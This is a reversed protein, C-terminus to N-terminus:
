PAKRPKRTTSPTLQAALPATLQQYLEFLYTVRELESTFTRRGYCADVAKDLRQHAKLLDPPMTNADYLDALTNGSALYPARADLVAQAAAEVAQTQAPTPSAPWPFNNYVLKNSYRYDSKLRGCVQRMWAMHMHSTLVGFHYLTVNPIMFVLNNAIVDPSIFGMPIYRRTESSVSPVLVYPQKTQRNETFLWPRNAWDQTATKTSELRKKRVGALRQSLIKSQRLVAPDIDQLWFCYRKIGNIYEEAGLLPRIYLALAPEQRLTEDKEVSTMMLFGGDTPQSGKIMPPVDCLTTGRDAIVTNNFDVLYPSINSATIELPEGAIDDYSFLRPQQATRMSFGIIVCYVAAKGRAENIWKFTRHAFHLKIGKQFLFPWLISVQEGQTISNTSVFACAINSGQIFEAAKAYWCAVYDLNKAGKHNGFVLDIDDTQQATRKNKGIFPPNGLIYSLRQPPIVTAWDIRLANGTEPTGGVIHPETKLPLRLVHLGTEQALRINMQHDTLWLAVRAIQVPLEEIEIGYFQDVNVISRLATDTRLQGGSAETELAELAKIIQTELLRLERYAIVLFNGCGCAPDLFTLGRLKTQLADLKAKRRTSKDALVQALEDKLGDLFLGNIVKLINKESTYHAGLRRRETQNMAAQFMSGFIAPSVENWRIACLELLADRAAADFHPPRLNEGFLSGNVYPFKLLDEDTNRQRRNEPEDLLAFLTSIFAGVDSGDERTKNEICWRFLDKEFIATDEAFLIFLLRVLFVKLAHEEYGNAKLGDFLNGLKEAAKINIPDEDKYTRPTYGALFSLKEINQPLEALTFETEELTNGGLSFLKFRQFDSVIIYQPLDRDRIGQLYDFAQTTAKNLDQGASKHEALLIGPWFLDIRGQARGLREVAKEFSAVYRRNVGFVKLLDNWFSQSEARESAVGQWERAFDQANRRIENLTLPM